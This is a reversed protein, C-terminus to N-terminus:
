FEGGVFFSGGGHTIPGASAGTIKVRGIETKPLSIPKDKERALYLVAAAIIGAGGVAFGIDSVFAEKRATDEKSQLNSFPNTRSTTANSPPVDSLAKLGFVAGVGLGAVGIAAASITAADVRGHPKKEPKDPPPPPAASASTPTPPLVAKAGEVRKIYSEARAREAETIPGMTLYQRYYKLADDYKALRESVLGLNFMLDKASPDLRRALQLEAIADPYKGGAYLDKARTFHEQAAAKAEATPPATNTPDAQPDAGYAHGASMWVAGCSVAVILLPGLGRRMPTLM